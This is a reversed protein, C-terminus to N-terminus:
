HFLLCTRSAVDFCCFAAFPTLSFPLVFLPLLLLLLLLVLPLKLTKLCSLMYNHTHTHLAGPWAYPHAYHAFNAVCVLKLTIVYCLLTSILRCPLSSLSLPLSITFSLSFSLSHLLLAVLYNSDANAAFVVLCFTMLLRSFNSFFTNAM